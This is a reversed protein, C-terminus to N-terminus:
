SNTYFKRRIYNMWAINISDFSNCNKFDAICYKHLNDNHHETTETLVEGTFACVSRSEMTIAFWDRQGCRYVNRYKDTDFRNEINWANFNKEIVEAYCYRYGLESIHEEREFLLVNYCGDVYPIIYQEDMSRIAKLKVGALNTEKYRRDDAISNRVREDGYVRVFWRWDDDRRRLIMRAIFPYESQAKLEEPSYESVLGLQVDELQEYGKVNPIFITGDSTVKYGALLAKTVDVYSYHNPLEDSGKTMCSSLNQHQALLSYHNEIFCNTRYVYFTKAGMKNTVYKIVNNQSPEYDDGAILMIMRIFKSIKILRTKPIPTIHLIDKVMADKLATISHSQTLNYKDKLAMAQRSTIFHKLSINIVNALVAEIEDPVRVMLSKNVRVVDDILPNIINVYTQIFCTTLASRFAERTLVLNGLEGVFTVNELLTPLAVERIGKM